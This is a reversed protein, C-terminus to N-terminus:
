DMCLHKVVYPAISFKMFHMAFVNCYRLDLVIPILGSIIGHSLTLRDALLWFKALQYWDFPCVRM